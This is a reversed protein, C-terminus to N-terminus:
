HPFAGSHEKLEQIRSEPCPGADARAKKQLCGVVREQIIGKFDGDRFVVQVFTWALVLFFQKKPFSIQLFILTAFADFAFQTPFCYAEAIGANSAVLACRKIFQRSLRSVHGLREARERSAQRLARARAGVQLFIASVTWYCVIVWIAAMRKLMALMIQGGVAPLFQSICLIAVLYGIDGAQPRALPTRLSRPARGKGGLPRAAAAAAAAGGGGELDGDKQEGVGSARLPNSVGGESPTMEVDSPRARIAAM